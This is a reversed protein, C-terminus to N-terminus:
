YWIRFKNIMFNVRIACMIYFLPLPQKNIKHTQWGMIVFFLDYKEQEASIVLM